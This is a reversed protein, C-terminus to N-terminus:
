YFRNLMTWSNDFGFLMPALSHRLILMTLGVAFQLIMITLCLKDERIPGTWIITLNIITLNSSKIIIEKDGKQKKVLSILKLKELFNMIPYLKLNLPKNGEGEYETYSNYLLGDDKNFKPLRHRPCDIIGFLQPASYIFNIIQPIFFLMLTKAFHGSIGVVAFVMGSFYCWTDGVFVKSPFWNYKLLSTSIGLFPILFCVSFMHISYADVNGGAGVVLYYFDNMLLLVTIVITQGVELGNIGALINVSNPCFISVSGMYVYYLWGLNISNESIIYDPLRKAVFRPILVSTKNFHIYYVILMPISAISPLFFKHRWRIDFLDDLLGLLIMSELSLLCSLYTSLKSNPFLGKFGNSNHTETSNDGGYKLFMFPIFTFMLFLYTIAPILGM